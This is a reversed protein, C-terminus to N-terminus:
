SSIKENSRFRRRRLQILLFILTALSIINAIKFSPLGEYSIEITGHSNLQSPDIQILHRESSALEVSSEYGPFYFIPLEIRDRNSDLNYEVFIKGDRREIKTVRPEFGSNWIDNWREVDETHIGRYVYDHYNVEISEPISDWRSHKFYPSTTIITLIICIAAIISWRDRALYEVAIASSIAFFITGFELFRHPFQIIDIRYFGPIAEILNWPFLDTAMWLFLLSILFSRVFIKRHDFHIRRILILMFFGLSLLGAFGFTHRFESGFFKWPNSGTLLSDFKGDPNM